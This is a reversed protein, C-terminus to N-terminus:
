DAVVPMLHVDGPALELTWSAGETVGLVRYPRAPLDVEIEPGPVEPRFRLLHNLGYGDDQVLTARLMNPGLEEPVNRRMAVREARVGVDVAEGVRFRAPEVASRWRHAGVQVEVSDAGLAVVEGRFLNRFGMLAAVRRDAPHLFPEDPRGTQLIHGDVLVM